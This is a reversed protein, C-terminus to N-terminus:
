VTNSATVANGALNNNTGGPNNFYTNGVVLARDTTSDIDVAYGGANDTFVNGTITLYDANTAKIGNTQAIKIFNGTVMIRNCDVLLINYDASGGNTIMNGNIITQGAANIYINTKLTDVFQNGQIVTFTTGAGTLFLCAQESAVLNSAGIFNDSIYTWTGTSISWINGYNGTIYNRDAWVYNCGSATLLRFSDVMQNEVVHLRNCLDAKIDYTNKDVTDYNDTFYCGRVFCDDAYQFSIAGESDIRSGKFQLNEFVMNRKRTGADGKCTFQFNGSNFDIITTSYDEGILQINNFMTISKAITYTGARVFIKGGGLRDVYNIAEQFDSFTGQERSLSVIAAYARSDAMLNTYNVKGLPLEYKLGFETSSVFDREQSVPSNNSQLFQNLGLDSYDAM